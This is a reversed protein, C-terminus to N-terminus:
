VPKCGPSPLTCPVKLRDVSLELGMEFLLFLVGLESLKELEEKNRFLRRLTHQEDHLSLDCCRVFARCLCCFRLPNGERCPLSVCHRITVRPLQQVAVASCHASSSPLAPWQPKAYGLQGLVLGSFLFALVPSIKASKFVPVVLVTAALFTLFDLGLLRLPDAVAQVRLSRRRAPRWARPQLAAFPCPGPRVLQAARRFCASPHRSTAQVIDKGLDCVAASLAAPASFVAAPTKCTAPRKSVM